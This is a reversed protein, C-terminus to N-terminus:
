LGTNWYKLPTLHHMIFGSVSHLCFLFGQSEKGAILKIRLKTDHQLTKWKLQTVPRRFTQSTRTLDEPLLQHTNHIYVMRRSAEKIVSCHLAPVARREKESTEREDDSDAMLLSSTAKMVNHAICCCSCGSTAGTTRVDESIGSDVSYMLLHSMWKGKNEKQGRLDRWLHCQATCTDAPIDGSHSCCEFRDVPFEGQTQLVEVKM